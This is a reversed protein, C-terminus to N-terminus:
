FLRTLRLRRIVRRPLVVVEFADWMIVAILLLGFMGALIAM